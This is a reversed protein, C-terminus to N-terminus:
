LNTEFCPLKALGFNARFVLNNDYNCVLSFNCIAPPVSSKPVMSQMPQNYMDIPTSEEEEEEEETQPKVYRNITQLPKLVELNGQSVSQTRSLENINRDLEMDPLPTSLDMTSKTKDKPKYKRITRSKTTINTQKGTNDIMTDNTLTLIGDRALEMDKFNDLLDNTTRNTIESKSVEEWECQSSPKATDNGSFTTPPEILYDNHESDIRNNSHDMYESHYGESIVTPSKTAIDISSLAKDHMFHNEKKKTFDSNPIDIASVPRSFMNRSHCVNMDSNVKRLYKSENSDVVGVNSMHRNTAQKPKFKRNKVETSRHVMGEKDIDTKLLIESKEKQNMRVREIIIKSTSRLNNPVIPQSGGMTMSPTSPMKDNDREQTTKTEKIPIEEVQNTQTSSHRLKTQNLEDDINTTRSTQKRNMMKNKMMARNSIQNYINKEFDDFSCTEDSDSYIEVIPEPTKVNTRIPMEDYLPQVLNPQRLELNPMDLISMSKIPQRSPFNETEPSMKPFGYDIDSLKTSTIGGYLPSFDLINQPMKWDETSIAKEQRSIPESETQIEVSRGLTTTLRRRVVRSPEDIYAVDTLNAGISNNRSQWHKLLENMFKSDIETNISKDSLRKTIPREMPITPRFVPPSPGINTPGIGTTVPIKSAFTKPAKPRFSLNDTAMKLNTVESELHKIRKLTSRSIDNVEDLKQLWKDYSKRTESSKTQAIDALRTKNTDSVTYTANSEASPYRGSGYLSQNTTASGCTQRNNLSWNGFPDSVTRRGVNSRFGAINGSSHSTELTLGPISVYTEEYSPPHNLLEYSKSMDKDTEDISDRSSTRILHAKFQTENEKTSDRSETPTNATSMSHNAQSTPREMEEDTAERQTRKKTNLRRRRTDFQDKMNEMEAFCMKLKDHMSVNVQFNDNGNDVTQDNDDSTQKVINTKFKVEEQFCPFSSYNANPVTHRHSNENASRRSSM